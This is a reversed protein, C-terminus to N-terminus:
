PREESRDEIELNFHDATRKAWYEDGFGLREEGPESSYESHTLKYLRYEIDGHLLNWEKTLVLSTTFGGM